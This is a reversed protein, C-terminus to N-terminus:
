DESSFPQYLFFNIPWIESKLIESVIIQGPDTPLNTTEYYKERGSGQKNDKKSYKILWKLNLM